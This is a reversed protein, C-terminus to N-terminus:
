QVTLTLTTTREASGASATVQITYTQSKPGGNGGCAVQLILGAFLFSGVLFSFFRRRGSGSRALGAGVFAFGVVPRLSLYWPQSGQRVYPQTLSAASAGATITLQATAKGSGDFDVSSPNVSCMPAGAQPPQVSCSLSVPNDFVSLLTLNVTSTASQGPGISAPSAPSASLSFDTGVNLVVAVTNNTSDAVVLDPAKDGNLDATFLFGGATIPFNAPAQFTGDGNGLLLDLGNFAVDPKGDGDFDAVAMPGNGDAIKLPQQFTGDGNGLRLYEACKQPPFFTCTPDIIDLKGDANFDAVGFSSGGSVAIVIPSQFTGNGNGLLVSSPLVSMGFVLDTNGDANFDGMALGDGPFGGAYDVHNQFTGDGNGLFVSIASGGVSLVAVDPRNDHNFDSVVACLPASASGYEVLPQFTGDGNGLLTALSGTGDSNTVVLDLRGDGNFDSVAVCTPNKGASLNRATQFTGDGNGLLISIGGDDAASPNGRNAVALDLKGDGNFDGTAVASPAMGVPYSVAPKLSITAAFAAHNLALLLFVKRLFKVPRIM